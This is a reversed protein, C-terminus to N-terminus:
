GEVPGKALLKQLISSLDARRVSMMLGVKTEAALCSQLMLAINECKARKWSDAFAQAAAAQIQPSGPPEALTPIVTGASAEVVDAVQQAQDAPIGLDQVQSATHGNLSVFLVTGLVATGM